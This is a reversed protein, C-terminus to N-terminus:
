VKELLFGIPLVLMTIIWNRLGVQEAEAWVYTLQAERRFVDYNGHYVPGREMFSLLTQFLTLLLCM